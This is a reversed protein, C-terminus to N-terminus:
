WFKGGQNLYIYMYKRNPLVFQYWSNEEDNKGSDVFQLHALGLM